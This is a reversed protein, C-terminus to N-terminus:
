VPGARERGTGEFVKSPPLGSPPQPSIRPEASWLFGLAPEGYDAGIKWQKAWWAWYPNRAGRAFYHVFAWGPSPTGSSLDGFGMDPSGPPATYLAYDAFHAFFPKRFPDIGLATRAIEMWWAAKTMYGAWYSLGEHWGGDDDSWVPYAAFFTSVAFHLFKEAAPEDGFLAIANEALKHWSRNGHSNYPRNLHGWGEGTQGAKWVDEARRLMVARVKRREEDTLAQWAWDYARPLRHLIPMAAEDNLKWNTPGDPNWSALHLIWKRAGEAFRREGTVLYVLALTEAEMCARLTQVRNSWWFRRRAPNSITGMEVPEPTPGAKLLEEARRRLREFAAAGEARAFVQLHPVDEPRLFLRPHARPIRSRLEEMPPQPLAIADRPIRFRRARSWTGKAARYRWYWAGPALTTHHTYVSWPIGTVSVAGSFGSDRAWQVEYQRHPGSAVWSLSPPNVAVTAGDAPRYGWEDAAPERDPPQQCLAVLPILAFATREIRM